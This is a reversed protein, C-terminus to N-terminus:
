KHTKSLHLDESKLFPNYRTEMIYKILSFIKDPCDGLSGASTNCSSCLLGRVDHTTHCHDIHVAGKEGTFPEGCSDCHGKARLMLETHMDWTLGYMRLIRSEYCSMRYGPSTNYLNKAYVAVCDRCASRRGSPAEKKKAFYRLSKVEGCKSCKKTPTQGTEVSTLSGQLPYSSTTTNELLDLQM